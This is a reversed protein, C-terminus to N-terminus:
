PLWRGLRSEPPPEPATTEAPPTQGAPASPRGTSAREEGGGGVDDMAVPERWALAAKRMTVDRWGAIRPRPGAVDIIVSARVAGQLTADPDDTPIEGCELAVRWTWAGVTVRNLVEPAIDVPLVGEIFPWVPTARLPDDLDVRRDVIAQAQAKTVGEITSLVDASATNIDIRGRRLDGEDTTFVDFPDIWDEPPVEFFLLLAALDGDTEIPDDEAVQRLVDVAQEGFRDGIRAALEDSWPMALNIRADGSTQMNPEHAHVTLRESGGGLGTWSELDADILPLLDRVDEIRGAAKLEVSQPALAELSADPALNLDLRGAEARFPRGGADPLMRCVVSHDGVEWLTFQNDMTPYHGSRLADRQNVLESAVVLVASRMAAHRQVGEIGGHVDAIEVQARGIAAITTWLATATVVTVSALVIGRRGSV